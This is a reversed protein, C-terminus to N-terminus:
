RGAWIKTIPLNYDDKNNWNIPGVPCNVWTLGVSGLYKHIDGLLGLDIIKVEYALICGLVREFSSRNYRSIVCDLLSTMNHKEFIYKLFDHRIISMGGFCGKWKSKDKYFKILDENNFQKIMFIEDLEQDWDHEFSWLIKCNPTLLSRNDIFDNIFVSDHIIVATDFFKFRYFYYYPLLEGRSNFESYIITTMFLKKNKLYKPDSNDDIIVIPVKPYFKRVCKYSKYWYNNTETCRVNRLIIFGFNFEEEKKILRLYKNIYQEQQKQTNYIKFEKDNKLINNIYSKKTKYYKKFKLYISNYEKNKSLNTNNLIIKKSFIKSLIEGWKEIDSFLLKIFVLNGKEKLVYKKEFDFTDFPELGYIKMISNISHLEELNNLYKDNFINILEGCSRNKYNPVYDSINQFFSSIKREIPTRYSDILYLKKNLSSRNILDILGDYNFQRKFCHEDHAKICKFGNSVFTNRLTTSGCKGGTLCIVDVIPIKSNSESMIYM